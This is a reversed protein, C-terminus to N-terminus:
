ASLELPRRWLRIPRGLHLDLNEFPVHLLMQRQLYALHDAEVPGPRAEIRELLRQWRDPDGSM